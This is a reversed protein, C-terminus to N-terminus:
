GKGGDRGADRARVDGAVEVLAVTLWDRYWVSVPICRHTHTNNERGDRIGERERQNQKHGKTIVRTVTVHWHEKDVCYYHRRM